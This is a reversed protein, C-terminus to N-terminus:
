PWSPRSQKCPKKCTCNPPAPAIVYVRLLKKRNQTQDIRNAGALTLGNAIKGATPVAPLKARRRTSKTDKEIKQAFNKLTKRGDPPNRVDGAAFDRM